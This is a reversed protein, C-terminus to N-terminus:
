PSALHDADHLEKKTTRLILRELDPLRNEFRFADYRQEVNTRLREYDDLLKRKLFPIEERKAVIGIDHDRVLSAMYELEESVIVPLGAALYTFLKSATAGALHAKGVALDSDFHYLLSGYHYRGSMARMLEEISCREELHFRPNSNAEEVYDGFLQLRHAEDKYFSPYAHVEIGQSTLERFVGLCQIDGFVRRSANASRIQGAHVVRIGDVTERGLGSPQIRQNPSPVIQVSPATSRALMAEMPWGGDKYVFGDLRTRVFAEAERMLDIEALTFIGEDAFIQDNEGTGVFSGMWDYIEQVVHLDPRLAKILMSLFAWRAHAQLYIPTGAPLCRVLAVLPALSGGCTMAHSALEGLAAHRDSYVFRPADSFLYLGYVGVGKDRLARAVYEVTPFNGRHAVVFVAARGTTHVRRGFARAVHMAPWNERCTQTVLELARTKARDTLPLGEVARCAHALLADATEIGDGGIM